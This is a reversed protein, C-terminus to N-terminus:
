SRFLAEIIALFDHKFGDTQFHNSPIIKTYFYFAFCALGPGVWFIWHGNWLHGGRVIAAGFCRAPNMGAGAYGKKATVTTSIFVLLGALLGVISMVTILGLAKSQRHDYAMWLSGFLLAFTCLFELWFAQAMELGVTDPGNPGSAIIVTVTCGGLSFRQEITSSLVAKLALAGLIAGVCQAVIYIIARSMSILGVLASSFTIVPSIHGGSVPFVALILITLTIAILISMILNPMKVDSELTSIVITDLMFVLIASGILEGISARWVDFSFFDPLGLREAMTLCSTYKKKEDDLNRLRSTLDVFMDESCPITVGGMPHDFGFEEEAQSLLDQFLPENLFSIPIVFRKKTEGVYVAFHGRPIDRTASSKKIM